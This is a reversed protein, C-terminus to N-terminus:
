DARHRKGVGINDPKIDRHAIGNQELWDAVVLLEEGFRQL